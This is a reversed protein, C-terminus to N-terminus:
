VINIKFRLDDVDWAGLLFIILNDKYEKDFKEILKLTNKFWKWDYKNPHNILKILKESNIKKKDDESDRSEYINPIILIDTNKFSDIFWNLLELTRNYQHPQFITLIKKDLNNWKLSELTLSIETPHHWYDSMVINNNVTKWITEMRRWVWNYVSLTKLINEEKIWILYWITFAIKADFLIHEGPIKIDIKPYDIQHWNYSFYNKHIEIYNIDKRKWILQRCNKDEWNIIAFGWTIINNLYEEYASIYDKLDKYYDLHDIEINTIIWVVPKYALFSRKYECAEIVFYPKEKNQNERLSIQSLNNKNIGIEQLLSTLPSTKNNRHYFNKNDFEKLLTWVVATFNEESNKLILSILSTTTSKGHTWAVTILKDKNAINALAKPYTLVEIWNKKAKLLESQEKPIAETYVVFDISKNIRKDDEWIIIDIWEKILKSILESNTKDSGLVKYWKELYYRAIASIWIWWIWIIYIKKNM